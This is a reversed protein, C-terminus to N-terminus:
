RAPNDLLGAYGAWRAIITAAREGLDDDKCLKYVLSDLTALWQLKGELDPSEDLEPLTAPESDARYYDVYIKPVRSRLIVRNWVAGIKEGNSLAMWCRKAMKGKLEVECRLAQATKDYIRWYSDSTRSGIYLTMGTDSQILSKKGALRKYSALRYEKAPRVQTRQIDIRTCYFAVTITELQSQYWRFFDQAQFGSVAIIYHARRKQQGIGHFVNGTSERGKYQQWRKPKWEHYKKELGACLRAYAVTDFTAIRIYDILTADLVPQSDLM